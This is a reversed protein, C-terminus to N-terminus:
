TGFGTCVSSGRARVGGPLHRFAHLGWPGFCLDLLMFCLHSRGTYCNYPRVSDLMRRVAQWSRSRAGLTRIEGGVHGRRRVCWGSLEGGVVEAVYSVVGEALEDAFAGEAFDVEGAVGEEGVGFDAEFGRGFGVRVERTFDVVVPLERVGM